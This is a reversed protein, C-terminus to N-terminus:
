KADHERKWEKLRRYREKRVEKARRLQEKYRDSQTYERYMSREYEKKKELWTDVKKEEITYSLAEKKALEILNLLYDETLKASYPIAIYSYGASWAAEEKARDRRKLDHFQEVAKDTDGDWATPIEHQRGHMEIVIKLKPIVWDFHHSAAPYNPNVRVVPYEQYIEQHKFVESNRLLEGM